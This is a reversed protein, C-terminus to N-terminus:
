MACSAWEKWTADNEMLWETAVETSSRGNLDVEVLLAAMTDNDMQYNRVIDYACPWKEEGGAWAMKKIWGYPKGCDYTADPNPGWAPDEFCALEFQPFQVYEGEYVSTVWHPQWVWLVIPAERDYASKLEAFMAADTGPHVIDFPLDLAAVMREDHDGWSVPGGVYRGNPTTDATAFVEACEKLAEWAPLGPCREKMYLPYWWDEVGRLGTEGMDLVKGTAVSKELNQLQTTQWTEMSIHLDGNEFGPYRGSDDAVVLETNYGVTQLILSMMEGQLGISTWDGTMIKITDDSEPVAQSLAPGALMAAVAASTAITKIKM